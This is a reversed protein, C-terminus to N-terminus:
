LLEPRASVVHRDHHILIATDDSQNGNLIYKFLNDALYFIFVIHIFPDAHYKAAACIMTHDLRFHRDATEILQKLSSQVLQFKVSETSQHGGLQAM